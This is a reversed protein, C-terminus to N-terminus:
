GSGWGSTEILDHLSERYIILRGSNSGDYSPDVGYEECLVSIASGLVPDDASRLGKGVVIVLDEALNHPYALLKELHSRVAARALAVSFQHLDLARISQGNSKKTTKWPRVIGTRVAEEYVSYFETM